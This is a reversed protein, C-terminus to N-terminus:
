ALLALGTWRWWGFYFALMLLLYLPAMVASLRMLDGAGFGGGEADQFVLYAKSCVPLTLCYNMGVAGIFLVAMPELGTSQAFLILPAGLAAARAVHSTMFLHSLLSIAAIGLLALWESPVAM